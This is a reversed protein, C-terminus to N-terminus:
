VMNVMLLLIDKLEGSIENPLPKMKGNKINQITEENTRGQFPHVGTILEIIIVGAAWIDSQFTMKKNILAEPSYYVKTENAKVCYEGALRLTLGFN